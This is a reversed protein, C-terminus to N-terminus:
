TRVVDVAHPRPPQAHEPRPAQAAARPNTPVSGRLIHYQAFDFGYSVRMLMSSVRLTTAQGTQPAVCLFTNLRSSFALGCANVRPTLELM